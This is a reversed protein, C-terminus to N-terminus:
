LSDLGIRDVSLMSTLKRLDYPLSNVAAPAGALEGLSSLISLVVAAGAREGM